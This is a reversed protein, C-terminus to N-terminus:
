GVRATSLRWVFITTPVALVILGTLASDSANASVASAWLLLAMAVGVATLGVVAVLPMLTAFRTERLLVQTIAGPPFRHRLMFMSYSYLISIPLLGLLLLAGVISLALNEEAVAAFNHTEVFFCGIFGHGKFDDVTPAPLASYVLVIVVLGLLKSTFGVPGTSGLERFQTGVEEVTLGSYGYIWPMGSTDLPRAARWEEMRQKAVDSSPPTAGIPAGYRRATLWGESKLILWTLVVVAVWILWGSQTARLLAVTVAVALGGAAVAVAWWGLSMWWLWGRGLSRMLRNVLAGREASIRYTRGGGVLVERASMYFAGYTMFLSLFVVVLPLAVPLLSLCELGQRADQNLSAFLGGSSEGDAGINRLAWVAVAAGSSWRALQLALRSAEVHKRGIQLRASDAVGFPDIRPITSSEPRRPLTLWV